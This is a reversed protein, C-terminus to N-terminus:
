GRIWEWEYGRRNIGEELDGIALRQGCCFLVEVLADFHLQVARAFDHARQAAVVDEQVDHQVLRGLASGVVLFHAEAHTHNASVGDDHQLRQIADVRTVAVATLAAAKSSFSSLYAM